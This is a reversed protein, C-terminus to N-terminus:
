RSANAAEATNVIAFLKETIEPNIKNIPVLYALEYFNKKAM